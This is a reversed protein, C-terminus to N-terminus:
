TSGGGRDTDLQQLLEALRPDLAEDIVPDYMARMQHGLRLRTQADLVPGGSLPVVRLASPAPGPVYRETPRPAARRREPYPMGKVDARVGAVAVVQRRSPAGPDDAERM